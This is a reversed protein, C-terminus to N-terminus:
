TLTKIKFETQYYEYEPKVKKLTDSVMRCSVGQVFKDNSYLDVDCMLAFAHCVSVTIIKIDNETNIDRLKPNLKKKLANFLLFHEDGRFSIIREPDLTSYSEMRRSILRLKEAIKRQLTKIQEQNAHQKLGLCRAEDLVIKEIASFDNPNEIDDLMKDLIGKVEISNAKISLINRRILSYRTIIAESEIRVIDVLIYASQM